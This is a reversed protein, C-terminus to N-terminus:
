VISMMGCRIGDHRTSILDADDDGSAAAALAADDRLEEGEPDGVVAGVADDGRIDSL